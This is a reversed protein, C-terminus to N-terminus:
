IKTFRGTTNRCFALREFEFLYIARIAIATLFIACYFLIPKVSPPTLQEDWFPQKKPADGM